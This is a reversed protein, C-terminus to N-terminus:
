HFPSFGTMGSSESFGEGRLHSRLGLYVYLTEVRRCEPPLQRLFVDSLFRDDLDVREFVNFSGPGLVLGFEDLLRKFIISELLPDSLQLALYADQLLLM